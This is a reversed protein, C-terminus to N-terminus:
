RAPGEAGAFRLTSAIFDAWRDVRPFVDDRAEFTLSCGQGEKAFAYRKVWSVSIPTETRMVDVFGGRFARHSAVQFNDGLKRRGAEYYEALGGGDPVPEFTLSLSAHVSQGGEDVALAPSAYHVLLTEGGAFRRTERWSRPVGLAAGREKWETVPYRDPREPTFSTWVEDLLARHAEAAAAEAQSYLGVVRGSAGLLLLRYATQGDASAFTWSKGAVGEREEDRSSAVRHGALYGRAYEDLPAATATALLTVSVPAPGGPAAPRALFHRYWVGDREAQDSTWSAPHRLSVAHDGSFYTVLTERPARGCAAATLAAILAAGGRSWATTRRKRPSSSTTSM